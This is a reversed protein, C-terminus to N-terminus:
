FSSSNPTAQIAIALPRVQGDSHTETSTTLSLAPLLTPSTFLEKWQLFTDDPSSVVVIEVSINKQTLNKGTVFGM